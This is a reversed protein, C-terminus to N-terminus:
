RRALRDADVADAMGEHRLEAGREVMECLITAAERADDGAPLAALAADMDRTDELVVGSGAPLHAESLFSIM